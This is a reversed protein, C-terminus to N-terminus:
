EELRELTREDFEGDFFKVLVEYFVRNEECMEGAFHFLTMSSRLKMADTVGFIDEADDTSKKLLEASIERLNEGLYPDKLFAIAEDLDEISYYRAIPSRGLGKIQPFVYWMWHSEKYGNQIEALACAYDRKQAERFRELGEMM